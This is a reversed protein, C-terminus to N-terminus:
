KKGVADKSQDKPQNSTKREEEMNMGNQKEVRENVKGNEHLSEIVRGSDGDKAKTQTLPRQEICPLGVEHAGGVEGIVEYTRNMALRRRLEVGVNWQGSATDTGRGM